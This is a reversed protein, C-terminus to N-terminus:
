ENKVEFVRLLASRAKKNTRVEEETPSVPKDTLMKGLGQEEFGNMIRKVVGDEKSHFSVVVLRGGKKLITVADKLSLELNDLESNVAIRLALFPRTAANTGRKSFFIKETATLFDGVTSFTKKERMELIKIALRRAELYECTETFLKILEDKGLANLLDSAKVEQHEPDLRMDLVADPNSFSLGRTESTLQETAVGLDYVIGDVETFGAIHCINKINIFNGQVLKSLPCAVELRKRAIELMREDQEIGLVEANRKCFELTYGGAGLTADVIKAQTKLPADLKLYNIVEDLMVSKHM